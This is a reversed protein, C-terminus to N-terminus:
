ISFKFIKKKNLIRSLNNKILDVDIQYYKGNINILKTMARGFISICRDEENKQFHVFAAAILILGNLLEKESGSSRKWIGELVEHSLWYRENNFLEVGKNIAEEKSLSREKITIIEDLKGIETLLSIINEVKEEKHISIDLEIFNDSIRVDRIIVEKTSIKNRALSLIFNADSPSFQQNNLYVMYRELNNKM